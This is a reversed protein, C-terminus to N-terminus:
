TASPQRGVVDYTWGIYQVGPHNAMLDRIRDMANRNSFQREPVDLAVNVFEAVLSYRARGEDTWPQRRSLNATRTIDWHKFLLALEFTLSNIAHDPKSANLHFEEPYELCGGVRNLLHPEEYEQKLLDKLGIELSTLAESLQQAYETVPGKLPPKISPETRGRSIAISMTLRNADLSTRITQIAASLREERDRLRAIQIRWSEYDDSVPSTKLQYANFCAELVRAQLEHFRGPNHPALEGELKALAIRADSRAEFNKRWKVFAEIADSPTTVSIQM